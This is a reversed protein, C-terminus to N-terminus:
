RILVKIDSIELGTSEKISHMIKAKNCSINYLISPNKVAVFLVKGDKLNLLKVKDSFDKFIIQWNQSLVLNSNLKENVCIDTNLYNKLVDSAKKFSLNEM